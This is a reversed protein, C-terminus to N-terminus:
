SMRERSWRAVRRRSAHPCPCVALFADQVVMLSSSGENADNGFLSQSSPECCTLVAQPASAGTSRARVTPCAEGTRGQTVADTWLSKFRAVFLVWINRICSLLWQRQASRDDAPTAHRHAAPRRLAAHTLVPTVRAIRTAAVCGDSAFYALLLNGLLAGVDFGMPGYFAFECDIVFTSTETVMISGTHLDGHLLAQASEMFTRKLATAAAKAAVDSRLAAADKDLQPSTHSNYPSDYFPDTFVVQETLECMNVNAYSAIARRFAAGRLALASTNFLTSALFEAMHAALQPYIGNKVLAGRLMQHPPEVFQMAIVAMAEDWLYEEPVHAPCCRREEMLSAAEFKIRDQSLPWSTGIMRIFPLAQKLILAGGPGSVCYIYNINGDGVERANWSARTGPGGLRAVLKPKSAVYDLVSSTDLRRFTDGPAAAETVSRQPVLSGSNSRLSRSSNVHQAVPILQTVHDRRLM